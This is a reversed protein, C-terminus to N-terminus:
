LTRLYSEKVVRIQPTGRERIVQECFSYYKPNAMMEEPSKETHRLVFEETGDPNIFVFFNNSDHECAVCSILKALTEKDTAKLTSDFIKLINKSMDSIEGRFTFTCYQSNYGTGLHDYTTNGYLDYNCYQSFSGLDGTDGILKINIYKNDAGKLRFGIHNIVRQFGKSVLVFDNNGANYSLQILQTTFMGIRESTLDNWYDLQKNETEYLMAQFFIGIEAPTLVETLTEELHKKFKIVYYTDKDLKLVDRFQELVAIMTKSSHEVKVEIKEDPRRATQRRILDDLGDDLGNVIDDDCPEKIHVQSLALASQQTSAQTNPQQAVAM